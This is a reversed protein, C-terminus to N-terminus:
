PSSVVSREGHENRASFNNVLIQRGAVHAHLCKNGIQAFTAEGTNDFYYQAVRIAENNDATSTDSPNELLAAGMLLVMRLVDLMGDPPIGVVSLNGAGRGAAFVIM